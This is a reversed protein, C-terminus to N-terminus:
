LEEGPDLLNHRLFDKKLMRLVSSVREPDLPALSLFCYPDLLLM